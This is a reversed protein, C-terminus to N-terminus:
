DQLQKPTANFSSDFSCYTGMPGVNFEFTLAFNRRPQSIKALVYNAQHFGGFSSHRLGTSGHLHINGDTGCQGLYEFKDIINAFCGYDGPKMGRNCGPYTQRNYLSGSAEEIPVAVLSLDAETMAPAAIALSALVSIAVLFKM